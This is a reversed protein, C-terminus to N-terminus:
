EIFRESIDERRLNVIQFYSRGGSQCSSIACEYRGHVKQLHAEREGAFVTATCHSYCCRFLEHKERGHKLMKDKRSFTEQCDCELCQYGQETRHITALHRKIDCQKGFPKKYSCDPYNCVLPSM